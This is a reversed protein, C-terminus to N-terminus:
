GGRRIFFFYLLLGIIVVVLLLAALFLGIMSLVALFVLLFGPPKILPM